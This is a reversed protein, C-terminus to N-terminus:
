KDNKGMLDEIFAKAEAETDCPHRDINGCQGNRYYVVYLDTDFRKEHNICPLEIMDRPEINCISIYDLRHSCIKELECQKCDGNSYCYSLIESLRYDKM